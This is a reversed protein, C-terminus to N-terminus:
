QLAIREIIKKARGEYSLARAKKLGERCLARAYDPDRLVDMIGEAMAEADDPEVFKVEDDTLWDRLAPISTAVVPTGSALYEGLKLPSTWAASPHSASPPLLLVDAQWLFPPIEAHPKLGHLTVNSSGMAQIQARHRIVDDPWGGVLHFQVTPLLSAARLITPIGKYDYLHGVYAVVPAGKPYPSSPLRDPRKFLQFDVGDPLVALKTAPVGLSRYYDALRQSITVWLRFAHHRAASVLRLFPATKNDPYTHSEAVTAYGLRSSLWPFVYNRTFVLDPRVRLAMFMALFAFRWHVDVPCSLVSHPLQVWEIPENLGYLAALEAPPVKGERPRRSILTVEHGLRAFGQAMKVTHIAHAWQSSAEFASVVLIRM